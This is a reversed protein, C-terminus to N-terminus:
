ALSNPWKKLTFLFWQLQLASLSFSIVQTSVIIKPSPAQKSCIMIVESKFVSLKLHHRCDM